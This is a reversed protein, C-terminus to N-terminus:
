YSYTLFSDKTLIFGQKGQITKIVTHQQYMFTVTRIQDSTSQIFAEILEGKDFAIQVEIGNKARLGKVFGNPLEQPLAPLLVITTDYSQLLMECIGSVAAFNGDIQFPPHADFLNLYTGAGEGENLCIETEKSLKLQIKLLKLAHDGDQLRAWTNIKWGLSWGTGVDTRDCLTVKCANALEPTKNPHIEDGPYLPYLHSIHRHHPEYEEYAEEWELLQGHDGIQYPYLQELFAKVENSFQEDISLLECCKIVNSFVERIIGLSMTSCKVIHCKNGEYIFTNEPSTTALPWYNGQENRELTHIFFLAAQKIAPYAVQELFTLDLSFDYHEMLHRTLWGFGGNWNGCGSMGKLDRGVPTSLGWLDVNHHTVVGEAHYYTKAVKAGTVMLMQILDFLPKHLEELHSSEAPWYNMQVNINTTYNCSFPARLENNWIGQLNAPLVCNRSSSILLYRGYHFL